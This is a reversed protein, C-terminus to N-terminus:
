STGNTLLGKTNAENNLQRVLRLAQNMNPTRRAGVFVVEGRPFEATRGVRGAIQVLASTSFVGHDAYLVMVGVRPFNVGRELVSTTVLVSLEGDRFRQITRIRQPEQSHCMGVECGLAEALVKQLKGCSAITPVFVLWPQGGKRLVDSIVHPLNRCNIDDWAPLTKLIFQPEPLPYGHYRAPITIVRDYTTLSQPTATMEVLKGGPVLSRLLGHRLVENGQYPFADVEDLIVLEFRRYFHLVQHTTAVVLSGPALWPQGGYHAAVTVQPFASSLREVMERVIDQRPITFLVQKGESLARQILPFTVETKGAGCAAWVLAREEPGQWFEMLETTADAQAKTLAFTLRLDVPNSTRSQHPAAMALLTSCGRNEGMSECDLCYFCDQSGCNVCPRLVPGESQCRNCVVSGWAGRTFGPYQLLLGQHVGLDLARSLDSPWFGEQRLAKLVQGEWLIRGRLVASIAELIEELDAYGLRPVLELEVRPKFWTLYWWWVSALNGQLRIKWQELQDYAQSSPLPKTLILSNHLDEGVLDQLYHPNRTLGLLRQGNTHAVFVQLKQM